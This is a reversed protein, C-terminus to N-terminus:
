EVYLFNLIIEVVLNKPSKQTKKPNKKSFGSGFQICLRHTMGNRQLNEVFDECEQAWIHM